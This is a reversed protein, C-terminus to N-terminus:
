RGRRPLGSKPCSHKIRLHETLVQDIPATAPLGMQTTFEPQGSYSDRISEYQKEYMSVAIKPLVPYSM